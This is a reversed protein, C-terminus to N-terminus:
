DLHFRKELIIGGDLEIIKVDLTPPKVDIIAFSMKEGRNDGTKLHGPNIYIAGNKEIVASIHTHGYLIVKADGNKAAETPDIDDHLDHRDRTPTHTLLFPVGCFEKIIRNLFNSNSYREEFIGPVSIVDIGLRSLEDADTSDDGLHIIVEAGFEELMRTAARRMQTLCGHTDSMAGLIM